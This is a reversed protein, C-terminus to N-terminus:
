GLKLYAPLMALPIGMYRTKCPLIMRSMEADLGARHMVVAAAVNFDEEDQQEKLVSNEVSKLFLRMMGYNRPKRMLVEVAFDRVISLLRIEWGLDFANRAIAPASVTDLWQQRQVRGGSTIEMREKVEATTEVICSPCFLCRCESTGGITDLTHAIDGMIGDGCSINHLLFWIHHDNREWTEGVPNANGMGLEMFQKYWPVRDNMCHNGTYWPETIWRQAETVITRRVRQDDFFAKFRPDTHMRLVDFTKMICYYFKYRKRRHMSAINGVFRDSHKGFSDYQVIRM